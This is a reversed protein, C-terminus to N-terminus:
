MGYDLMFGSMNDGLVFCYEGPHVVLMRGMDHVVM